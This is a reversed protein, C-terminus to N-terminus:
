KSWSCGDVPCKWAAGPPVAPHYNNDKPNYKHYWKCELSYAELSSATIEFWFQTYNQPDNLHQKLRVNLNTDSRGVYHAVNDGSSLIYTGIVNNRIKESIEAENFIFPGNM